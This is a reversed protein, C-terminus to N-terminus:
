FQISAGAGVMATGPQGGIQDARPTGLRSLFVRAKDVNGLICSAMWVTEPVGTGRMTCRLDKM